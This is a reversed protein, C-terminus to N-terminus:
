KKLIPKFIHSRTRAIKRRENVRLRPKLQGWRNVVLETWFVLKRKTKKRQRSPTGVETKPDWGIMQSREEEGQDPSEKPSSSTVGYGM